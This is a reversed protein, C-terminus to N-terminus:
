CHIRIGLSKASHCLYSGPLRLTMLEIGLVFFLFSLFSSTPALLRFCQTRIKVCPPFFLIFTLDQLLHYLYINQEKLFKWNEGIIITRLSWNNLVIVQFAPLVLYHPRMGFLTLIRMELNWLSTSTAQRLVPQFGTPQPFIAKSGQNACLSFINM